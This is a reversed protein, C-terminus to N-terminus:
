KKKKKTTKKKPKDKVEEIKKTEEKPQPMITRYPHELTGDEIEKEPVVEILEIYARNYDNNGLLYDAMEKTCEFEDGKKFHNDTSGTKRTINKLENWRELSFNDIVKVRIMKGGIVSELLIIDNKADIDCSEDNIAIYGTTMIHVNLEQNHISRYLEWTVPERCCLGKDKAEKVKDIHKKFLEIDTVKYALPEDHHKIYKIDNNNYTCFFLVDDTPTELITKIAKESYYVDGFLYITPETLLELPFANLWYGKGFPNYDNNKPEYRTAGLNDFREDHSTVIIDKVGNEKLLRITREVLAEGNIKILQRPTEFYKNRSDCLIIVM